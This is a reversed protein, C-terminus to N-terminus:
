TSPRDGASLSQWTDALASELWPYQWSLARRVADPSVLGLYRDRRDEEDASTLVLRRVQRLQQVTVAFVLLRSALWREGDGLAVVAYECDPGRLVEALARGDTPMTAALQHTAGLTPALSVGRVGRSLGSLFPLLLAILALLGAIGALLLAFTSTSRDNRVGV